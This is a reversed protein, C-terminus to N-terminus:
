GALMGNTGLMMLVEELKARGGPAALPGGIATVLEDRTRTGDLLGLLKRVVPDSFRIAEHYLNPVIDNERSVWRAAAFAEPRPGPAAAAVAPSTRLDVLGAVYLESLVVEVPRRSADAAPAAYAHRDALEAVPVSRPWRALLYEKVAQADPDPDSAATGAAAARRFDLSPVAYMGLARPPQVVFRSLANAHCLLTQRFRRFYVFDLYQERTIRDLKGLAQRV